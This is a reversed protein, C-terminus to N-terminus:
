QDERFVLSGTRVVVVQKVGRSSVDVLLAGASDIGQVVGAAPEICARGAAFDREAFRALEDGTLPGSMRAAARVPAAIRELVADRSVGARLGVARTESEPPRLNVGLGIAVWEPRGERWRAEILIGGLKGTGVYLDNPWKLRVPAEALPDLAPAVALGVRLSLTELAAPDAPREIMTMWVGAGAESQWSRGMRGRGATQAAAVVLTGAPAGAAALEHAVDLTSGVEDYLEVRPLSLREALADGESSV